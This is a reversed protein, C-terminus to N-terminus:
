GRYGGGTAAAHDTLCRDRREPVLCDRAVQLGKIVLALAIAARIQLAMAPLSADGEFAAAVAGALLVVRAPTSERMLWREGWGFCIGLLCFMVLLWPPSLFGIYLGSLGPIFNVQQLGFDNIELQTPVLALGHGLKGQWAFSPVALLLSEPLYALSLRPQGTGISQLVGGAFDVSSVRVAFQTVIGSTDGVGQSGGVGSLGDSLATVRSTIGSDSYFLNRSHTVRVGSIALITLVTLAAAAALQRAPVRVGSFLLILVLAIADTLVPMREGGVALLMSQVALVPVFWRTGHRLLFAAAALVIMVIFFTSVLNTALPTGAGAATGSNYGRGAATILALPVCAAGLLRWDLAKAIVEATGQHVQPLVREPHTLLYGTTLALTSGSMILNALDIFEHRIGLAFDNQQGVGPIALLLPGVGQSLCAMLMLVTVPRRAWRAGLRHRLLALSCAQVILSMLLMPTM